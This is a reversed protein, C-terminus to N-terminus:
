ASRMQFRIASISASSAASAAQAIIRLMKEIVPLQIGLRAMGSAMTRRLDHFTWHEPPM